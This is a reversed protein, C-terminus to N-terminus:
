VMWVPPRPMEWNQPRWIHLCYPHRNVYEEIPPHLQVCCDKPDFLQRKVWEMEDWTPCRDACSVSVHDWGGGDSCVVRLHRQMPPQFAGNARDGPGARGLEWDMPVRLSM